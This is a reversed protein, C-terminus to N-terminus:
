ASRRRIEAHLPPKRLRSERSASVATRISHCLPDFEVGRVPCAPPRQARPARELCLCEGIAGVYVVYFEDIGEVSVRFYDIVM